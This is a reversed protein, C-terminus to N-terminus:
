GHKQDCAGTACRRGFGFVYSDPDLASNGGEGGKKLFREPIFEEPSEYITEDRSIARTL